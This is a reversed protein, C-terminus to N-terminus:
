GALLLVHLAGLLQQLARGWRLAGWLGMPVVVVQLELVPM